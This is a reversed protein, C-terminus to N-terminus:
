GARRCRDARLDALLIRHRELLDASLPRDPTAAKLSLSLSPRARGRLNGLADEYYHRGAETPM